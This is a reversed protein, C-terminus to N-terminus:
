KKSSNEYMIRFLREVAENRSSKVENYKKSGFELNKLQSDFDQRIRELLREDNTM